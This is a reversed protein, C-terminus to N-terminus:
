ILLLQVLLPSITDQDDDGGSEAEVLDVFLVKIGDLCYELVRKINANDPAFRTLSKVENSHLLIVQYKQVRM